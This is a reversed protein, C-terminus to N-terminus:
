FSFSVHTLLRNGADIRGRGLEQQIPTQFSAGVSIRNFNAELGMSANLIHGGTEEVKFGMAHDKQQSEFSIGAYPALRSNAGLAIKYYASANAAIKNGYRYDDKNETNIKYSANANIGFDQIRVDYMLSPIFDLSGTGLQFMNPNTATANQQEAVDYAGTPLKVGMGVWLSQVVLKNNATPNSQDFLKYYENLTIDGIGNKKRLLDSGETYKENFNYPVLALVRWKQGINWAGWLEMTQYKEDTSLATRNGNIDLQTTLRNFQYRLGVFRKTFDPLLGIYNGGVGCGCIDCAQSSQFAIILSLTILLKKM